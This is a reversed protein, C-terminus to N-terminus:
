QAHRAGPKTVRDIIAGALDAASAKVDKIAADRAAAIKAEADALHKALEKQQEAQRAASEKAAQVAIENITNQAQFRADALAKEYQVMTAKAAENAAQAADLDAKLVNARKDQTRKVGPLAIFQMCLFLLAFSVALWFLQEPFHAPNLQPLGESAPEAAQEAMVPLAYLAAAAFVFFKQGLRM